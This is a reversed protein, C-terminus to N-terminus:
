LLHLPCSARGTVRGCSTSTRAISSYERPSSRSKEFRTETISPLLGDISMGEILARNSEELEAFMARLEAETYPLEDWCLSWTDVGVLWYVLQPVIAEPFPVVTYVTSGIRRANLYSGSFEIERTLQPQTRDSIDFISAKLGRGDGTFECDYGYACEGRQPGRSPGFPEPFGLDNFLPDLSSYVVARDNHVFLKKPTGELDVAAIRHAQPAPWADIIQLQNNAIIYIYSGDNKLFDAEDVGEVQTNTTSFDEASESEANAEPPGVGGAADMVVWEEWLRCDARTTPNLALELNADLTEEMNETIRRKLQDLVDDCSQAPELVVLETPSTVHGCPGYRTCGLPDDTLDTGCQLGPAAPEEGGLFLYILAFVPDSVDLVGDDNADAADDCGPRNGGSFLFRLTFTADSLDLHSDLNADGRKFEASQGSVSSATLSAALLAATVFVTSFRRAFRRM